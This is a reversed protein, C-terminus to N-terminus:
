KGRKIETDEKFEKLYLNEWREGKKGQLFIDKNRRGYLPSSSSLVKESMMGFLSGSIILFVESNDRVFHDIFVQLSSVVTMNNGPGYAIYWKGDKEIIATFENHM